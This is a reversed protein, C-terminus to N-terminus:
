HLQGLAGGPEARQEMSRAQEDYEVALKSLMMAAGVDATERALRLYRRAKTHFYDADAVFDGQSHGTEKEIGRPMSVAKRKRETRFRVSRRM